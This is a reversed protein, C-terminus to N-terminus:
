DLNSCKSAVHGFICVIKYIQNCSCVVPINIGIPILYKQGLTFIVKQAAWLICLNKPSGIPGNKNIIFYDFDLLNGALKDVMAALCCRSHDCVKSTVSSGIWLCLGGFHTTTMPCLMKSIVSPIHVKNISGVKM